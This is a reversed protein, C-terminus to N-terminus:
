YIWRPDGVPGGNNSATRLPSGAPLTFNTTSENWGLDVATNGILQAFEPFILAAGEGNTLNYLNNYAVTVTSGTSSVRIMDLGGASNINALISNQMTFNVMNGRADLLPYDRYGFNALTSNEILITPVPAGPLDKAWSILQRGIGYFTSNVLELRQFQMEDLVFFSYGGSEGVNYVLSNSIRITNVKYDNDKGRNGRLITNGVGHIISNEVIFNGFNAAGGVFNFFYDAGEVSGDFEIGAFTAGAGEGEVDFQKFNVKTDRPNGSTSRLTIKKGNIKFTESLSYVGPELGIVDGSASNELAEQLNDEPTLVTTYMTEMATTFSSFGKSRNGAYIEVNYFTNPQLNGVTISGSAIAEETLAVEIADGTAPRLVLRTLTPTPRWRLLVSTAKIDPGYLPLMVQEGRIQFSNSTVWHSEPRDGLANAKIRAFYKTRVDLQEDTLVVGATDTQVSVIVPSQFLTDAAVEVTYTAGSSATTYLSPNWTLKVQNIGSQSQIDGAPTFMRMPALKDPDEECSLALMGLLVVPLLRFIRNIAEKM